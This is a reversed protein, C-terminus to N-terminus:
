APQLRAGDLRRLDAAAARPLPREIEPLVTMHNQNCVHYVRTWVNKVIYTRDPDPFAFCAQVM